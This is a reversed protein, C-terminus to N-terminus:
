LVRCLPSHIFRAAIVGWIVPDPHSVKLNFSLTPVKVQKTEIHQMVFGLSYHLVTLGSQVNYQENTTRSCNKFGCIYM